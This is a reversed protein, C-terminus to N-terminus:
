LKCVQLRQSCDGAKALSVSLEAQWSSQSTARLLWLEKRKEVEILTLTYNYSAALM